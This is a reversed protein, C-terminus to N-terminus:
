NLLHEIHGGYAQICMRVREVASLTFNCLVTTDNIRRAAYFIRQDPEDQTRVAHREHLGVCPFRASQSGTVAIAM